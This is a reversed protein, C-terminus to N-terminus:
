DDASAFHLDSDMAAPMWPQDPDLAIPPMDQFTYEPIIGKIRSRVDLDSIRFLDSRLDDLRSELEEWSVATGSTRKIKECSTPLAQEHPYFLEEYLKEGPRLGTFVIEVERESKGSLRILTRALDVIRMPEGMDLVLVDRHSGISSAQLVLSVAERITMFFRTVDPHTVTIRKQEALQRQFVPVVSGQSGLVNGFRVSVCRMGSAPRSALILEGLRKTAGMVNTPSVAKDSSILIFSDCGASEALNLFRMLGFVNNQLAERPNAEMLPVHKYAAAHFVVDVLHTAFLRRMRDTDTYDAVCCTARDKGLEMDLYFLGTENQDVCILKAPRYQLIQRCLESGISGAAGTVVIVRGHVVSQVADLDISVPDRGLLDDLKVERLDIIKAKGSLLDQLSPVTSFKLGAAECRNVFRRMQAKTASPVAILVETVAHESAIEALQEVRGLVRKGQIKLGQKTSDDDLCGVVWYESNSYQLERLVMQGAFGAGIVLIQKRGHGSTIRVAADAMVRFAIRVGAVAGASLAAEIIYVSLPFQLVHLLPRMILFFAISGVLTAKAIDTADELDTYRWHGHLLRFQKMAALRCFVLIPAANLVIFPDRFHFEFRLLWSLLLSGFVLCIHLVLVIASHEQLLLNTLRTFKRTM